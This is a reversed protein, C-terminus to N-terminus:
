VVIESRVARQLSSIRSGRKISNLRTGSGVRHVAIYPVCYVGCERVTSGAWNHYLHSEVLVIKGQRGSQRM